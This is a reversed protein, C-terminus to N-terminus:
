PNSHRSVVLTVLNGPSTPEVDLDLVCGEIEYTKGLPLGAVCVADEISQRSSTVQLTASLYDEVGDTLVRVSASDVALALVRDVVLRVPGPIARQDTSANISTVQAVCDRAALNEVIEMAWVAFAGDSKQDVQMHVRLLSELIGLRSRAQDNLEGAAAIQEVLVACEGLVALAGEGLEVNEPPTVSFDALAGRDIHSTTLLYRITNLATRHLWDSTTQSLDSM